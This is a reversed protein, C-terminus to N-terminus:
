FGLGGFCYVVWCFRGTFRCKSDAGSCLRGKWLAAKLLPGFFLVETPIRGERVRPKRCFVSWAGGDSHPTKRHMCNWGSAFCLRISGAQWTGHALLLRLPTRVVVWSSPLIRRKVSLSALDPFLSEVQGYDYLKIFESASIQVWTCRIGLDIKWVIKEELIFVLIQVIFHHM